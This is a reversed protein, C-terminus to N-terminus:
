NKQCFSDRLNYNSLNVQLIWVAKLHHEALRLMHTTHFNTVSM